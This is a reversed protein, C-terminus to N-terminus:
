HKRTKMYKRNKRTKMKRRLKRSKKYGGGRRKPLPCPSQLEPPTPDDYFLSSYVAGGSQRKGGHFKKPAKNYRKRYSEYVERDEDNTSLIEKVEEPHFYGKCNISDFCVLESETEPDSLFQLLEVIGEKCIYNNAHDYVYGQPQRHFFQYLNRGDTHSENHFQCKEVQSEIEDLRAYYANREEKPANRRPPVPEEVEPQEHVVPKLDKNRPDRPVNEYNTKETFEKRESLLKGCEAPYVFTQDNVITKFLALLENEKGGLSPVGTGNEFFRKYELPAGLFMEKALNYAMNQSIKGVYETNLMCMFNLLQQFRYFKEGLYGGHAKYCDRAFPNSSTKFVRPLTHSVPATIEYHAHAGTRDTTLRNCYICWKINGAEQYLKYLKEHIHINKGSRKQLDRLSMCNHSIYMCGDERRNWAFCIPCVAFERLRADKDENMEKNFFNKFVVFDEESYGEFRPEEAEYYPALMLRVDMSPAVDYANVELVDVKATKNVDAGKEMLMKAIDLQGNHVAWVLPTYGSAAEAFGSEREDIDFGFELCREVLTKNGNAIASFLPSSGNIKIDKLLIGKAAFIKLIKHYKAQEEESLGTDDFLSSRQLAIAAATLGAATPFNMIAKFRYDNLLIEIAKVDAREVAIHLATKNGIAIRFDAKLDKRALLYGLIEYKDETEEKNKPEVKLVTTLLNDGIMNVGGISCKKEILLFHAAAKNLIMIAYWIPKIKYEFKNEIEINAGYKNVLEKLNDFKKSSIASFIPPIQNAEGNVRALRNILMQIIRVSLHSQSEAALNIPGKNGQLINANMGKNLLFKLLDMAANEVNKNAQLLTIVAINVLPLDSSLSNGKEAFYEKM